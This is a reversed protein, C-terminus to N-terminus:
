GSLPRQRAPLAVRQVGILPHAGGLPAVILRLARGDVRRSAAMVTSCRPASIRDNQQQQKRRSAQTM